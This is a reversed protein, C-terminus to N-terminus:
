ENKKQKIKLIANDILRQNDQPTIIRELVESSLAAVIDGAEQWLQESAAISAHKIDEQTRLRIEQVEQRAKEALKEAEKQAQGTADTIIRLAQQKQDELMKEAKKRASDATDIQEQIYKQRAQLSNLLPRWAFKGLVVAVLVFAVVAWIADAFTGTFIGQEQEAAESQSAMAVSCGFLVILITAATKICM